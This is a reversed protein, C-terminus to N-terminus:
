SEEVLRRFQEPPVAGRAAHGDYGFTPVATIGARQAAAFAEDLKERQADSDLAASVEDPDIDAGTALERLVTTEGIDRGDVWLAEFVSEDFALWTEYPYREVVDYSVLQAPLSDIDTALDLEMEVDYQAQLRRVSAKAQKFYAGDKGDDVAHDIEGDATRKDRRLDFPRWEIELPEGGSAQYRALSERGFYCFPCVYDSYLIIPETTTTEDSTATM